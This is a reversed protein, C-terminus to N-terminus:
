LYSIRKNCCQGCALTIFCLLAGHQLQSCLALYHLIAVPSLRTAPALLCPALSLRRAAVPAYHLRTLCCGTLLHTLPLQGCVCVCVNLALPRQWQVMHHQVNSKCCSGCAAACMNNVQCFFAIFVFAFLALLCFLSAVRRAAM